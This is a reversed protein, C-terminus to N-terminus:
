EDTEEGLCVFYRNKMAWRLKPRFVLNRSASLMLVFVLLVRLFIGIVVFEVFLGGAFIGEKWGEGRKSSSSSDSSAMSMSSLIVGSGSVVDLFFTVQDVSVPM